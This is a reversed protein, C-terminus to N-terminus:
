KSFEHNNGKYNALFSKVEYDLQILEEISSYKQITFKNLAKEILENIEYFKIRDQLYEAVAFENAANLIAPANEGIKLCDFALQLCPFREFDPKEFTLNSLAMFDLKASGSSIRKPASLAYAIPTKMDPSGLQAIISSDNYEVMSHIISQPHVVVDIQEISAHFLHYAEIVELGKNMLTASDISIKNGMSWNPHKLAQAAMTNAIDVKSLKRLPGGSATLIIKMYTLM